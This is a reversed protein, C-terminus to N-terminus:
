RKNEIEPHRIRGGTYATEMAVVTALINLVFLIIILRQLIKESARSVFFGIFSIGAIVMLFILYFLAWHEHPEIANETIGAVSKMVSEEAPDGTLYAALALLGTVCAFLLSTRKLEKSKQLLSSFLLLMTFLAGVIPLHGFILHLHAGNM